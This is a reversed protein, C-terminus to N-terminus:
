LMDIAYGDNHPKLHACTLVIVGFDVRWYDIIFVGRNNLIFEHLYGIRLVHASMFLYFVILFFFFSNM